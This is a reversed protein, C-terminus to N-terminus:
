GQLHITNCTYHLITYGRYRRRLTGCLGNTVGINPVLEIYLGIGMKLRGM